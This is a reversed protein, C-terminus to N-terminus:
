ETGILLCAFLVSCFNTGHKARTRQSPCGSLCVSRSSYPRFSSHTIHLLFQHLQFLVLPFFLASSSLYFCFFLFRKLNSQRSPSSSILILAILTPFLLPPNFIDIHDALNIATLSIRKNRERDRCTQWPVPLWVETWVRCDSIRSRCAFARLCVCVCVSM